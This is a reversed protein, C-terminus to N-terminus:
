PWYTERWTLAPWPMARGHLRALWDNKLQFSETSVERSRFGNLLTQSYGCAAYALAAALVLTPRVRLRELIWFIGLWMVPLVLLLSRMEKNEMGFSFFEGLALYACLLPLFGTALFGPGPRPAPAVGDSRRNMVFAVLCVFSFVWMMVIAHYFFALCLPFYLLRLLGTCELTTTFVGSVENLDILRIISQFGGCVVLALFAVPIFGAGAALAHAVVTTRWIRIGSFDTRGNEVFSRRTEIWTLAIWVLEAVLYTGLFIIANPAKLWFLLGVGAGSLMSNSWTRDRWARIQWALALTGMAFFSFDAFYFYSPDMSINQVACLVFLAATWEPRDLARCLAWTGFALVGYTTALQILGYSVLSAWAEPLLFFLWYHLPALSQRPLTFVDWFKAWQGSHLFGYLTMCRLVYHEGDGFPLANESVAGELCLCLSMVLALLLAIALPWKSLWDGPKVMGIDHEQERPPSPM